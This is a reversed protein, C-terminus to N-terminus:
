AVSKRLYYVFYQVVSSLLKILPCSSSFFTRPKFANKDSIAGAVCKCCFPAGNPQIKHCTSKTFYFLWAIMEYHSSLDYPRLMPPLSYYSWWVLNSWKGSCPYVAHLPTRNFSIISRFSRQKEKELWDLTADSNCRLTGCLVGGGRRHKNRTKISLFRIGYRM